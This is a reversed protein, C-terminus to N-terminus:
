IGRIAAEMGDLGYEEREKKNCKACYSIEEQIKKSIERCKKLKEELMYRSYEHLSESKKDELNKEFDVLSDCIFKLEGYNLRFKKKMPKMKKVEIYEFEVEKTEDFLSCQEMIDM